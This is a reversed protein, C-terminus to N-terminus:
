ETIRSLHQGFVYFHTGFMFTESNVLLIFFILITIRLLAHRVCVFIHKTFKQKM